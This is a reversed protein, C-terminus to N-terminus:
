LILYETLIGLLYLCYSNQNGIDKLPVSRNCIKLINNLYQRDDIELAAKATEYSGVSMALILKASRIFKGIAM